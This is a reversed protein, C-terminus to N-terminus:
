SFLGFFLGFFDTLLLAMIGVDTEIAFAAAAKAALFREDTASLKSADLLPELSFALVLLEDSLFDLLMVADGAVRM